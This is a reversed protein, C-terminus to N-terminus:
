RWHGNLIRLWWVKLGVMLDVWIGRNGLRRGDIRLVDNVVVLRLLMRGDILGCRLCLWVVLRLRLQVSRGGRVGILLKFARLGVVNLLLAIEARM